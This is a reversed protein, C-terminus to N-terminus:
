SEIAQKILGLLKTPFLHYENFSVTCSSLTAELEMLADTANFSKSRKLNAATQKLTMRKKEKVASLKQAIKDPSPVKFQM